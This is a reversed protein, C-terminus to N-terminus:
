PAPSGLPAPGADLGPLASGPSAVLPPIGGFSFLLGAPSPLLFSPLPRESDREWSSPFRRWFAQDRSAAPRRSLCAPLGAGM